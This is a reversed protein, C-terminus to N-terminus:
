GKRIFEQATKSQPMKFPQEKGLLRKIASSLSWIEASAVPDSWEFVSCGNAFSDVYAVRFTLQNKLATLQADKNVSKILDASSKVRRRVRNWVIKARLHKNITMARHILAEFNSFSWIEVPSPALPILVLNSYLLMARVMANVHPAGDIFIFDYQAQHKVILNQLQAPTAANVVMVSDDEYLEQRVEFWKALSHQPPDADIVLVSASRAFTVALNACLTSKGVGGKAQAISVIKAKSMSAGKTLPRQGKAFSSM